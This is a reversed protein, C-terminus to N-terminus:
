RSNRIIHSVDFLGRVFTIFPCLKCYINETLSDFFVYTGIGGNQIRDIRHDKGTSYPFIGDKHALSYAVGHGLYTYLKIQTRVFSSYRFLRFYVGFVAIDFNKDDRRIFLGSNGM